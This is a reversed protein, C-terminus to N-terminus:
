NGKLEKGKRGEEIQKILKDIKEFFNRNSKLLKQYEKEAKKLFVTEM